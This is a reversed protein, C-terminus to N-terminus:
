SSGISPQETQAGDVVLDSPAFVSWDLALSGEMLGGELSGVDRGLVELAELSELDESFRASKDYLEQERNKLFRKQKRLRILKARAATLAAVAANEAAEAEEEMKELRLVEKDIRAFNPVPLVVPECKAVGNHVCNGCRVDLSSLKCEWGKKACYQCAVMVVIGVINIRNGRARRHISSRSSM